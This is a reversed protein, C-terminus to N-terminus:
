GSTRCAMRPEGGRPSASGSCSRPLADRTPTILWAERQLLQYLVWAGALYALAWQVIKRQRLREFIPHM